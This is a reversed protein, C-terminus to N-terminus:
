KTIMHVSSFILVLVALITLSGFKILRKKRQEMEERLQSIQEEAHAQAKQLIEEEAKKASNSM